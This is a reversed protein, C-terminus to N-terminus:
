WEAWFVLYVPKSGASLTYSGGDGLELTFDPALPRDSTVVTTTPSPTTTAQGETDSTVTTLSSSTSSAPTTSAAPETGAPNCAALVVALAALSGFMRRM